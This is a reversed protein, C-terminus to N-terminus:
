GHRFIASVGSEAPMRESPLVLVEGGKGLVAIALDEFVDHENGLAGKSFSIDGARADIGGPSIREQDLLLVSVNGALAAETIYFPNDSALSKPLVEQFRAILNDIKQEWRPEQVKWAMDRLSDKELMRPDATIGDELLNPNHSVSRFLSQHEPLAALILPLGSPKSHYEAIGQDVARFFREDDLEEEDKRSSHGHRMAVGTGGYSAVTMHPPTTETGLAETMTKPVEPALDIEDLRDRSGEYLKVESRTLALVQFREAIQFIRILPRIYFADTVHAQELM